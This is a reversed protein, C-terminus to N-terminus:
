PTVTITLTNSKVVGGGVDHKAQIVYKGPRSVEYLQNLIATESISQGPQLRIQQNSSTVPMEGRVRRHHQTMAVPKGAIDQVEIHFNFEAEKGGVSRSLM